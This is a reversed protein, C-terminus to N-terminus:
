SISTVVMLIPIARELLFTKLLVALDCGHCQIINHENLKQNSVIKSACITHMDGDDSESVVVVDFDSLSAAVTNSTNGLASM